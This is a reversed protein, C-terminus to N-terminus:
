PALEDIKIADVKAQYPLSPLYCNIKYMPIRTGTTSYLYVIAKQKLDDELTNMREMERNTEEEKGLFLNYVSLSL